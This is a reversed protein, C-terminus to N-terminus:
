FIQMGLVQVYMLFQINIHFPSRWMAIEDVRECLAAGIFLYCHLNVFDKTCFVPIPYGLKVM